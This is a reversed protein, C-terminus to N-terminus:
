CSVCDARVFAARKGGPSREIADVLQVTFRTPEEVIRALETCLRGQWGSAPPGATVVEVRFADAATQVIRYTRVLESEEIATTLLYPSIRRGSPLHIMDGERGAIQALCPSQRGCSCRDDAFFATDGSDFRLLPMAQNCLTSLVIPATTGAPHPEVHVSEFNLHYRGAACQWAVEKFETNGYVDFLRGRFATEIRRRAAPTVVESSTCIATTAPLTRQLREAVDVLDLLYSPFAYIVHPRFREIADLHQAVPAHISLYELRFFAAMGDPAARKLAPLQSEHQESVILIRRLLPLGATAAVRRMKLAYRTLSWSARDFYTTTPEGSSGSTRSSHRLSTEHGEALFAAPERQIDRKRLLPFRRLDASSRLSEVTLGLRRYFPVRTVAYRMMQVLAADQREHIRERTWWQSRLAVALQRALLLQEGLNM